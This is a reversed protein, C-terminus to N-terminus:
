SKLYYGAGHLSHTLSYTLLYPQTPSVGAEYEHPKKNSELNPPRDIQAKEHNEETEGFM